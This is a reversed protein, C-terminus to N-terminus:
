EKDSNDKSDREKEIDALGSSGSATAPLSRIDEPEEIVSVENLKASPQLLESIQRIHM